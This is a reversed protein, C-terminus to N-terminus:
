MWSHTPHRRGQITDLRRNAAAVAVLRQLPQVSEVREGGMGADSGFLGADRVASGQERLTFGCTAKELLREREM